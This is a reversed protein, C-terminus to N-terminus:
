QVRNYFHWMGIGAMLYDQPTVLDNGITNNDIAEKSTKYIVFGNERVTFQNENYIGISKKSYAIKIYDIILYALDDNYVSQVKM